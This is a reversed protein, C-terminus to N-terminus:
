ARLKSHAIGGNFHHSIIIMIINNNNNNNIINIIIIVTTIITINTTTTIGLLLLTGSIFYGTELEEVNIKFLNMLSARMIIFIGPIYLTLHIVVALKFVAGVNGTFNELIDVQTDDRFTLYGM